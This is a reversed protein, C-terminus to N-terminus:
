TEGYWAIDDPSLGFFNKLQAGSSSADFGMDVYFVTLRLPNGDHNMILVTGLGDVTLCAGQFWDLDDKDRFVSADTNAVLEHPSRLTAMIPKCDGSPWAYARPQHM